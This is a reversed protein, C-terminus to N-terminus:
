AGSRVHARSEHKGRKRSREEDIVRRYLAAHLAASREWSYAKARERGAARLAGALGPDELVRSLGAAIADPSHPDVFCAADGAIERLVSLDSAVVPAGCHMAEIMPVGFGEYLSVFPVADAAAYLAPLDALPVYDLWRVRGREALQEFTRLIESERWGRAGVVVLEHPLATTAILRDFAVLLRALNKRPELNGVTLLYPRHLGHRERTARARGLDLAEAFVPGAAPHIVHIQESPLHLRDEIERKSHESVTIVARAGRAVGPLARASLWRKQWGFYEPHRLVALDHVTVVYPHDLGLPALYNPFHMLDPKEDAIQGRLRLQMWLARSPLRDKTIERVGTPAVGDWVAERNSFLVLEEFEGRAALARLLYEVHYGIGSKRSALLTADFGIKM